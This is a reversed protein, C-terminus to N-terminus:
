WWLEYFINKQPIGEEQAMRDMDRIMPTPGCIFCFSAVKGDPFDEGNMDRIALGLDERTIRASSRPSSPSTEFFRCKFNPHDKSIEELKQSFLWEEPTKASFLLTVNRAVKLTEQDPFFLLLM